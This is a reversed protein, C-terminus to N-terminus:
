PHGAAEGATAAASGPRKRCRHFRYEGASGVMIGYDKLNLARAARWRPMDFAIQIEEPRTLHSAVSTVMAVELMDMRGFPFFLNSIDDSGCAVNVGAELLQKLAPSAAAYPNNIRGVRSTFTSWHSQHHRQDAGPRSERDRAGAYDDPYAALACCHGATVRGQYAHRILPKPSCSWRTHILITLKM